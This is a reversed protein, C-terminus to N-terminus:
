GGTSRGAWSWGRGGQLRFSRARQRERFSDCSLFFVRFSSPSSCVCHKQWDEFLAIPRRGDAFSFLPAPAGRAGRPAPLAPRRRFLRGQAARAPTRWVRLSSRKKKEVDNLNTKSSFDIANLTKPPASVRDRFRNQSSARRVPSKASATRTALSPRRYRERGEREASLEARVALGLALLAPSPAGPAGPARQAVEAMPSLSLRGVACSGTGM